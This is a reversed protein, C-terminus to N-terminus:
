SGAARSASTARKRGRAVVIVAVGVIKLLDRRDAQELRDVAVVGLASGRERAKSNGGDESLELAIEAVVAPGDTHRAVEL